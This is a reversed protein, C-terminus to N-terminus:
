FGGLLGRIGELGWAQSAKIPLPRVWRSPTYWCLESWVFRRPVPSTAEPTSLRRGLVMRGFESLSKAAKSTNLPQCSSYGLGERGCLQNSGQESPSLRTCRQNRSWSFLLRSPASIQNPSPVWVRLLLPTSPARFVEYVKSRRKM